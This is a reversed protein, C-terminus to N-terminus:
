SGLLLFDKGSWGRTRACVEYGERSGEDNTNGEITAFTEADSATVIGTHTWDASTRRNLFISGAGIGRGRAEGERVFLGRQKGNAALLDCSFTEPFPMDMDTAACAQRVVHCVFGACWPWDDGEHGKMYLRVWPGRNQGGVERPHQALHQRAVAVVAAGLTRPPRPLAATARRMPMTLSLFTPEDMVGSQALGQAKQFAALAAETAPGFAGDVAVARGHLTLWEQVLRAHRGKAGRRVEGPFALERSEAM